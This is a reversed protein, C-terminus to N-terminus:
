TVLTNTKHNYSKIKITVVRPYQLLHVKLNYNIWVRVGKSIGDQNNVQLMIYKKMDKTYYKVPIVFNDPDLEFLTMHPAYSLNHKDCYKKFKQYM